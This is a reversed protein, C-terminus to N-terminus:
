ALDAVALGARLRRAATVIVQRHCQDANREACLVAVRRKSAREALESLASRGPGALIAEFRARGDERGSRVAERNEVPNGLRPDHVYEIGAGGLSRALAAGSFGPIRTMASLRVDVVVEIGHRTLLEMFESARRGGYGVSFLCGRKTMADPAMGSDSLTVMERPTRLDVVAPAPSAANSAGLLRELTGAGIRLQQAAARKSIDGAILHARVQDWREAFGPRELAPPRGIRVGKRRANALGDNVRERILDREFEAVAALVTLLLRGIPTTTDIEPQSVCVFHLGRARWDELTNLCEIASRFARDLKWVAILDVRRRRADEQLRKWATRRVFDSASALDVYEDIVIWGRAAAFERMPALQIEPDQNKDRTSVRAALAARM